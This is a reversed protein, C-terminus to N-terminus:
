SFLRLFVGADAFFSDLSEPHLDGCPGQLGNAESLFSSSCITDRRVAMPRIAKAPRVPTRLMCSNAFRSSFSLIGSFRIVEFGTPCIRSLPLKFIQKAKKRVAGRDRRAHPTKGARRRGARGIGCQHPRAYPSRHPALGLAIYSATTSATADGAGTRSVPPAEDPYMPLHWAGNGDLINAGNPGDTVVVTKPGLARIGLMLKKVDAEDTTLIKAGGRQQLLLHRDGCVCRQTRGRRTKDPLYRAPLRAEDGSTRTCIRCGRPPVRERKRRAIHPLYIEAPKRIRADYLHIKDAERSYDAGRRVVARLPLQDATRSADRRIRGRRRKGSRRAATSVTRMMVSARLSRPLFDSAHPRWRPTPPTGWRAYRSSKRMRFRTRLLARVARAHRPGDIGRCGQLKIFADTTIDGIAVFDYM